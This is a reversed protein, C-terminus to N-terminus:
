PRAAAALAQRTLRATEAWSFTAALARGRASLDSRLPEDCLVRELAAEVGKEDRPDVTLAAAGFIEGLSPRASVVVPLGRAMAEAAPLGFGEYESLFVAADAAAYRVALEPESVFGALRVHRDLGLSRVARPLDLPPVTRNEGVVELVLAPHRRVLRSVARLLVPLCRRNFIAGVTLLLPGM